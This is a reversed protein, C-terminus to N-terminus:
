LCVSDAILFSVVTNQDLYWVCQLVGGWKLIYKSHKPSIGCLNYYGGGWGKEFTATSQDLVV